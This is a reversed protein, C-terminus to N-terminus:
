ARLSVANNSCCPSVSFHQNTSKNTRFSLTLAIPIYLLIPYTVKGVDLIRPQATRQRICSLYQSHYSITPASVRYEARHFVVVGVAFVGVVHPFRKRAVCLTLSDTLIPFVERNRRMIHPLPHEEWVDLIDATNTCVTGSQDRATNHKVSRSSAQDERQIPLVAYGRPITCSSM